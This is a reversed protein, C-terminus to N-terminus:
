DDAKLWERLLRLPLRMEVVPGAQEPDATVPVLLIVTAGEHELDERTALPLERYDEGNYM